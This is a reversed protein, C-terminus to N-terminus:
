VVIGLGLSFFLFLILGIGGGLFKYNQMKAKKSELEGLENELMDIEEQITRM